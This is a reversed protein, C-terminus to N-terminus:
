RTGLAPIHPKSPNLLLGREGLGIKADYIVLVKKLQRMFNKKFDRVEAYESGFQAALLEWPIEISHKLYSMRYTLWCYIDIALSSGKLASLGRLNIPIPHSVIEDYFEQTLTISSEWLTSQEPQKPDWFLLVKSAIRFGGSIEMSNGDYQFSVSSSFLRKLQEKLMPITGWRGGTPTLNLQSMFQSLTHGLMIEKSKNKVAESSIFAMILRPKTGYPLGINHAINNKDILYGPQMVMSFNGNHRGWVEVLGPDKHPMTAQVLSRAMYGLVGAEKADEHEIHLAESILKDLNEKNM